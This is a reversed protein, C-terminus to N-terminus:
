GTVVPSRMGAASALTDAADQIDQGGASVEAAAASFKEAAADIATKIATLIADMATQAKEQAATLQQQAIENVERAGMIFADAQAAQQEPSLLGFAERMDADIQKTLRDIMAADTTTALQATLAAAEDKLYDYKGATDLKAFTYQKISGAFMDRITTKLQEMQAILAVVNAYYGKTAAALATTAEGTGDYTDLLDLLAEGQKELAAQAGRAADAIMELADDMPNANFVDYLNSYAVAFTLLSDALETTITEPVINTFLKSLVGPLDSAKLAAILARKNELAIRDAIAQSDRGIDGLAVDYVSKGNVYAGTHLIAGAKGQPDMSYGQAFGATSKMGLAKAFQEYAKMNADLSDKVQKDLDNPTAWRGSSDVYGSLAGVTGSTAFGGTKPGGEKSKIWNYILTGGVAIITGIIPVANAAIWTAAEGSFGLNLAANGMGETLGITDAFGALTGSLGGAGGLLNGLGGLGGGGGGLGSAAAGGAGGIGTAGVAINLVWRKAAMYALELAIQKLSGLLRDLVSKGGEFIHTFADHAAQDIKGWLDIQQRMAGGAAVAQDMRALLNAYAESTQDIGTAQLKRLAIEREREADSLMMLRNEEEMQAVLDTAAVIQMNEAGAAKFIEEARKVWEANNAQAADAEAKLADATAKTADRQQALLTLQQVMALKEGTLTGLKMNALAIYLKDVETLKMESALATQQSKVMAELAQAVKDIQEKADQAGTYDLAPKQAAKLDRADGTFGMKAVNRMIADDRMKILVSLSKTAVDIERQIGPVFHPANKSANVLDENLQRIQASFREISPVIRDAYTTGVTLSDIWGLGEARAARIGTIWDNLAPVVQSLLLDKFFMAEVSLRRMAQELKEAEAAQEKTVTAVVGHTNAMDKLMALFAPGGKGFLDRALAAKNAGDQYQNLREAVLQLAEAPDKASIGLAALARGTKSGTEEVGAMGATMRLLLTKLTDFEVGSIKAQNALKSLNAVSSGTSDALDDLAAASAITEKAWSVINGVSFAGALGLLGAKVVSAASSMQRMATETTAAAARIDTSFKATNAELSVVLQAITSM